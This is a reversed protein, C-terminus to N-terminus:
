LNGELAEVIFSEVLSMPPMDQERARRLFEDMLEEQEYESNDAVWAMMAETWAKTAVSKAEELKSKYPEQLEFEMTEENFNWAGSM